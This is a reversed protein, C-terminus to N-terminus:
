GSGAREARGNAGTTAGRKWSIEEGSSHTRSCTLLKSATPTSMILLKSPLQEHHMRVSPAGTTPRHALAVRCRPSRPCGKGRPDGSGTAPAGTPHALWPGLNAAYAFIAPQGGTHIFLLPAEPPLADQRHPGGDGQWQVGPRPADGGAAAGRDGDRRANARQAQRLGASAGADCVEVNTQMSCRVGDPLRDDGGIRRLRRWGNARGAPM